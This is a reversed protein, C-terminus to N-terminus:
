KTFKKLKIVLAGDGGFDQPARKITQIKSNLDPNNKIFEPLTNQLKSYERSVYVNNKKDSHMGKGTIILIESFKEEFCKRILEAVKKNANDISYGHFDFKYTGNSKHNKNELKDKDFIDSPNNLFEEWDKHDSNKEKSKKNM